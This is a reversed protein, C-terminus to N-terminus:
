EPPAAPAADDIGYMSRRLGLAFHANYRVLYRADHTLDELRARAQSHPLQALCHITQILDYGGSDGMVLAHLRAGLGSTRALALLEGLMADDATIQWLALAIEARSAGRVRGLLHRLLPAAEAPGQTGLWALRGLGAVAWPDIGRPSAHEGLRAVLEAAAREREPGSLPTLFELPPGDRLAWVDRPGLFARRFADYAPSTADAQLHTV